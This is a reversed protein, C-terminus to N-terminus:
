KRVKIVRQLVRNKHYKYNDICEKVEEDIKTEIIDEITFGTNKLLKLLDSFSRSHWVKTGKDKYKLLPDLIKPRAKYKLQEPTRKSSDPEDFIFVGKQKLTRYVEEFLPKPDIIHNITLSSVVFDFHNNPFDLKNTIDALKFKLKAGLSEKKQAEDLMAQSSDIGVIDKAITSLKVMLLGTGCGLDLGKDKRVEKKLLKIFIPHDKIIGINNKADKDYTSAWELYALDINNEM